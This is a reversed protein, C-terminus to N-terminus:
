SGTGLGEAVKATAKKLSSCVQPTMATTRGLRLEVTDRAGSGLFIKCVGDLSGMLMVADRGGFRLASRKGEGTAVADLPKDRMTVTLTGFEPSHATCGEGSMQSVSPQGLGFRVSVPRLLKCAPTDSADSASVASEPTSCSVLGLGACLLAAATLARPVPHRSM